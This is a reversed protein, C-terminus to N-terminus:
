ERHNINSKFEILLKLSKFSRYKVAYFIPTQHFIDAVEMEIDQILLLKVINENDNM